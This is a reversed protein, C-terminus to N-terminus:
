GKYKVKVKLAKDYDEKKFFVKTFVAQDQSNKQQSWDYNNGRAVLDKKCVYVPVVQELTRAYKRANKRTLFVHIGYLVTLQNKEDNTLKVDRRNSKNWGPKWKYNKLPSMLNSNVQWLVKWVKVMGNSHVIRGKLGKETLEKDIYLCM